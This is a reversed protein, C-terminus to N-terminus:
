KILVKHFIMLHEFIKVMMKVKGTLKEPWTHNDSCVNSPLQLNYAPKPHYYVHPLLNLLGKLLMQSNVGM